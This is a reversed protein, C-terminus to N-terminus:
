IIEFHKSYEKVDHFYQSFLDMVDETKFYTGSSMFIGLSLSKLFYMLSLSDLLLTRQGYLLHKYWKSVRQENEKNKM